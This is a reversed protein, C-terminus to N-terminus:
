GSVRCIWPSGEKPNGAFHFNLLHRFIRAYIGGHAARVYTMICLNAIYALIGVTLKRPIGGLSARSQVTGKPNSGVFSSVRRTLLLM